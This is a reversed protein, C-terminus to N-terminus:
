FEEHFILLIVLFNLFRIVIGFQYPTRISLWFHLKLRVIYFFFTRVNQDKKKWIRDSKVESNKQDTIKKGKNQKKWSREKM